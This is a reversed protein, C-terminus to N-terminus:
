VRATPRRRARSPAPTSVRLPGGDHTPTANPQIVFVRNPVVPTGDGAETGTMETAQGLLEVLMSEHDPALHQILVFAMGSDSPMNAFFTKFAELGGASAGIGVILPRTRGNSPACPRETRRDVARAAPLRNSNGRRGTPKGNRTSQRM